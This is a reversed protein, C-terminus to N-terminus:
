CRRGCRTPRPRSGGADNGSADDDRYAGIVAINGSISVSYGFVDGSAADSALLHALEVPECDGRSTHPVVVSVALGVAVVMTYRIQLRM